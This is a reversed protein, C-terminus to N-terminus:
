VNTMLLLGLVCKVLYFSTRIGVHSSVNNSFLLNKGLAILRQPDRTSLSTAASYNVERDSLLFQSTNAKSSIATRSEKMAQVNVRLQHM